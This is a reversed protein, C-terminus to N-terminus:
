DRQRKLYLYYAGKGGHKANATHYRLVMDNLPPISIWDPFRSKLVGVGTDSRSGKGTIVLVCRKQAAFSQSVFQILRAHAQDQTMGHMDLIGEVPIKGQKLRTLTKRDLQNQGANSISEKVLMTNSISGAAKDSLKTQKKLGDNRKNKDTQDSLIQRDELPTIGQTFREWLSKSNKNDDQGKNSM